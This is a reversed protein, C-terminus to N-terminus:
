APSSASSAPRERLRTVWRELTERAQVGPVVLRQDLLWAPTGTVGQALAAETSARVAPWAVNARVADLVDDADVGQEQLVEALVELRGIDRGEVFVAGFLAAHVAAFRNPVHQRVLEAAQLAPRSNPVHVPSTFALGSAECEAAIHRYVAALRGDPSVTRGEPPLEPHLEFPLVTVTVGLTELFRTRDTGLYAWPCLYDSWAVADV